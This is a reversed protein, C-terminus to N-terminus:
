IPELNKTLVCLHGPGGSARDLHLYACRADPDPEDSFLSVEVTGTAGENHWETAIITHRPPWRRQLWKPLLRARWKDWASAWYTDHAPGCPFVRPKGIAPCAPAGLETMPHDCVRARDGNAFAHAAM